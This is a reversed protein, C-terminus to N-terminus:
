ISSKFLNIVPRVGYKGLISEARLDSSQDNAYVRFVKSTSVSNPTPTMTWYGSVNNSEGFNQYIWNPIGENDDTSVSGTLNKWGLNVNLEDPTLLRIKHGEVENLNTEELTNIYTGELFEKVKSGEYANNGACSSYDDSTYTADGANHCNASCHYSMADLNGFAAEGLEENTLIKEKLLTVYDEDTTSNKIVYWNSGAFKVVDGITYDQAVEINLGECKKVSSKTLNDVNTLEICYGANDKAQISYSYKDGNKEVIIYSNASDLEGYPSKNSGKELEIETLKIVKRLSGKMSYKGNESVVGYRVVDVMNSLSKIYTERKSSDIYKTVSPIAILMLIGLIVIVALLEILTFGKKNKM